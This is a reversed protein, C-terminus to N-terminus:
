MFDPLVSAVDWILSKNFVGFAKGRIQFSIRSMNVFIAKMTIGFKCVLKLMDNSIGKIIGLTTM